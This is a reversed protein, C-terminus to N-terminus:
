MDGNCHRSSDLKSLPKGPALQNPLAVSLCFIEPEMGMHPKASQPPPSLGNFVEQKDLELISNRILRTLSRLICRSISQFTGLNFNLVSLLISLKRPIEYLWTIFKEQPAKFTDSSGLCQSRLLKLVLKEFRRIIKNLKPCEISHQSLDTLSHIRVM